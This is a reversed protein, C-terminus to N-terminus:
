VPVEPGYLVDDQTEDIFQRWEADDPSSGGAHLWTTEDTHWDPRRDIQIDCAKEAAKAESDAVVFVTLENGHSHHDGNAALKIEHVRTKGKFLEVDDTEADTESM